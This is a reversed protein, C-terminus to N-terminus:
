GLFSFILCFGIKLALPICFNMFGRGTHVLRETAEGEGPRKQGALSVELVPARSLPVIGPPLSALSGLPSSYVPPSPNVHVDVGM